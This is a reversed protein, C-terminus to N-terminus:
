AALRLGMMRGKLPQPQLALQSLRAQWEPKKVLALMNPKRMGMEEWLSQDTMETEGAELRRVVIADLDVLRGKLPKPPMLIIDDVLNVGPFMQRYDNASLGTRRDQVVVAEILGCDDGVGRRANGRLVAQLTADMLEGRRMKAIQDETPHQDSLNLNLAAGSAAWGTPRSVFNRGMLYVHKYDSCVNTATHREWTTFSARDRDAPKMEPWIKSSRAGLPCQHGVAVRALRLSGLM